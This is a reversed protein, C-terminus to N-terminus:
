CRQSAARKLAALLAEARPSGVIMTDGDKLALTVGMTGGAIYARLPGARRLGYGGFDHVADFTVLTARRWGDAAVHTRWPLARLRVVLGDDGVEVVLRVRLLWAFVGWLRAAFFVVDGASVPFGRAMRPWVARAVALATVVLPLIALALRLHPVEFRQEDRFWIGAANM